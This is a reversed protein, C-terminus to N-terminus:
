KPLQQRKRASRAGAEPAQHRRGAVRPPQHKTLPIPVAARWLAEVTTGLARAIALASRIGAPHNVGLELNSVQGQTMGVRAGLEAQTWGKARRAEAIRPAGANTKM